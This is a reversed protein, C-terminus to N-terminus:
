AFGLASTGYYNTGDYYLNILDIAGAATSLTPAVGGPWKVAAPWTVTRSGTGDQVLRLVYAGGIQPSAFTYTVNGTLTSKQASGNSWTLTKSTGSNGSDFETPAVVYNGVVITTPLTVTGTFTPSALPAKLALLATLSSGIDLFALTTSTVAAVALNGSGDTIVTRGATLATGITGTFTPNATPAKANFVLYDAHSLLGATVSTASALPINLAHNSGSNVWAPATGTSGVSLTQTAGTLGGLSTIGSGPGGGEVPLDIYGSGMDSGEEL